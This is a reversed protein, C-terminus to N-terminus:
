KEIKLQKILDAVLAIFLDKEPLSETTIGKQYCEWLKELYVTESHEHKRDLPCENCQAKSIRRDREKVYDAYGMHELADRGYLCTEDYWHDERCARGGGCCVVVGEKAKREMLRITASLHSDTMDCLKIEIGEKTTHVKM